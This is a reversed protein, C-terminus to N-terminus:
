ADATAGLKKALNDTLANFRKNGIEKLEERKETVEYARCFDKQKFTLKDRDLLGIAEIGGVSNIANTTAIDFKCNRIGKSSIQKLVYQWVELANDEKSGEIIEIFHALKPLFHFKWTEMIVMEARKIESMEFRELVRFYIEVLEISVSAKGVFAENMVKMIVSFEKLDTKHM